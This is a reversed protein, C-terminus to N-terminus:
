KQGGWKAVITVEGSHEIKEKYLGLLKAIDRTIDFELRRNGEKKAMDKQRELDMLIDEMANIRLERRMEYIVERAERMLKYAYQISCDYEVAAWKVIETTGKGEIVNMDIMKDIRDKTENLAM